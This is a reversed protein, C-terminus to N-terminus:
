GNKESEAISDDLDKVDKQSFLLRAVILYVLADRGMLGGSLVTVFVALGVILPLATFVPPCSVVSVLSLFATAVLVSVMSLIRVVLFIIVRTTLLAHDWGTM